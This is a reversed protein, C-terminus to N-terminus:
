ASVAFTSAGQQTGASWTSASAQQTSPTWPESQSGPVITVMQTAIQTAQATTLNPNSGQMASAM